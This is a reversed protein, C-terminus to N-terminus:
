IASASLPPLPEAARRLRALDLRFFLHKAGETVVLYALTLAVVVGLVPAPMPVFGFFAGWPLYPLAFAVAVVGVSSLTLLTSPRDRWAARASRIVFIILVQTAMSQVFWATQFLAVPTHLV